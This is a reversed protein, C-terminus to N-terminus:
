SFSTDVSMGEPNSPPFRRVTPDVSVFFLLAGIDAKTPHKGACTWPAKVTVKAKDYRTGGVLHNMAQGLEGMTLLCHAALTTWGQQAQWGDELFTAVKAYAWSTEEVQHFDSESALYTLYKDLTGALFAEMIEAQKAKGLITAIDEM